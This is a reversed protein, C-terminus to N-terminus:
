EYTCCAIVREALDMDITSNDILSYAKLSNYIGELVLINGDATNAVFEIIEDSIEVGDRKCKAKLIDICLQIDPAELKVNLGCILHALMDDRIGRLEVPSINSAMVVQKDNHIRSNFIEMFTDLTKSANTWEQIDDVILVDISKYFDVYDNMTNQCVSETYERKFQRATVYVVHMEPLKEKYRVGIANILHTKGSGSPGIILLPNFTQGSQEAISLGVKRALKNSEGEIFNEFTKKPDLQHNDSKMEKRQIKEVLNRYAENPTNGKGIVYKLAEDAWFEACDVDGGWSVGKPVDWPEVNFALYKGCSYCGSYRDDIITVPYVEDVEKM